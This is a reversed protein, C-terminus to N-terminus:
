AVALFIYSVGSANISCTAEQNVTIGPSYPDVADATTIEAATSNLQLAPDNGATIGRASDWVWWSGTTSTAKVLFFRAGAAFGCEINQSSGNGTYSGVKSIGALTAFLYAVYTVASANVNTNIGISFVTATPDTDNWINAQAFAATTAQLYMTKTGGNFSDYTQWPKGASSRCKVIMLEPVVALNHAQTTAVGTGTYCVEDFFGPARKFFWNIYTDSSGNVETATGLTIGDQNIGNVRSAVTSEANPSYTFLNAPTGRLRDAVVTGSSTTRRDVLVLDPAFGVGTVTAAAGTGTRAIANYVQTGTTPPKNPMRIAMYIYLSGNTNVETSTSTIQFGTATPSLYEVSSEANALNAQLTADAYGVPMGRMSDIVQWNGTGSANKIMLYQPEWGLTVVPGTASGNGTYSGCQIIGTADTDHAFIYAVYTSGNANTLASTGVTFVSSTPSTNNFVTSDVSSAGTTNLLLNSGNGVSRHYVTWNSSSSTRKFIICGPISGLAHSINQASGTGTYTVVDFFKAAKRFTWSVQTDGTGNIGGLGDAGLSFGNSNFSTLLDNYAGYSNQADTSTPFIYNNVGRNTDFAVHLTSQNRTKFWVMGGKGALDIGNTITQTSDNGTYLYTSFVDDVFTQSPAGGMGALKTKM